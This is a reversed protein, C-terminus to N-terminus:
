GDCRVEVRDSFAYGVPPLQVEPGAGAVDLGQYLADVEAQAADPDAAVVAAECSAAGTLTAEPLIAYSVYYYPDYNEVVLAAAAADVPAALPRTHTEVVKGDVFDISHGTRPALPVPEEGHTLVLDGTFDPPWDTLSASLAALEQATLVADADPDLGLDQTLVLSFFEDYTWTLRVATVLSGDMLVEVRSDVFVHPHALAPAPLLCALLLPLRM